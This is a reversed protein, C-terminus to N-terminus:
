EARLLGPSRAEVHVSKEGLTTLYLSPQGFVEVAKDVGTDKELLVQMQGKQFYYRVVIEEKILQKIEESFNNLDKENDHALKEELASFEKDANDFYKERRATEILTKLSEESRTNYTFDRSAIYAKFNNYIYDTIEFEEISAIADYRSAFVTAYDFILFQTLLAIAVQSLTQSEITFDPQIGGGDYVKRGNNTLYETILSDPITGVSGDENRHSYDLAQICRGSPIYYKATTVKLRTNYSLERTTQVLGKGYTRQGIIVARDLDQLSGAVIESASASGRSVLVAVHIVTDIPMFRTRYVQDWQKVRGRTSVIEQGQKIFLNAVDVAEILLGGPNDRLDLVVAELGPNKKLELLASKTEQGAGTTFNALNIYGVHDDLMCYYRVNNITIKERVISKKIPAPHSYRRIVLELSTNPKGKLHDSIKGIELNIMPKGDISIITDGAKLGAKSAPFGEYPEAVIAYDGNRRILAGIGGYQGTTMFNFNESDTEPIYTTYPDLEKLMGNISNEVLKEPNTEDVYFLNLERFLSYYIELSKVLKFDDNSSAIFFLSSLTILAIGAIVTVKRNLKKRTM